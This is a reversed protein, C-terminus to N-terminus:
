GPPPASPKAGEQPKAGEGAKSAGQPAPAARPPGGAGPTLADPAAAGEQAAPGGQRKARAPLQACPNPSCTGPGAARGGGQRCDRLNAVKCAGSQDCCQVTRAGCASRMASQMMERRPKAAQGRDTLCRLHRAVCRVYAGHHPWEAGARPGDCPCAQEPSCGDPCVAQGAPTNPCKDCGTTRGATCDAVKDGDSDAPPDAARALAGGGALLGLVMAAAIHPAMRATARRLRSHGASRSWAADGAKAHSMLIQM